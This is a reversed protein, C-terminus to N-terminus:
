DVVVYQLNFQIVIHSALNNSSTELRMHNRDFTKAKLNRVKLVIIVSAELM